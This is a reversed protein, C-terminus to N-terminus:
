NARLAKVPDISMARRAPVYSAVLTVFLLFGAVGAMTTLDTPSVSFLQTELIRRGAYAGVFGIALGAAALGVGRRLIMWRVESTQAGLTLRIGIERTRESVVYSMLGYLGIAALILAAVGFGTLLTM